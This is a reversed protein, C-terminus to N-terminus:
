VSERAAWNALDAQRWEANLPTKRAAALMEVSNDVGIFHAAPWRQALVATSNGPGCGLDVVVRPAQQAVRAALEIAPRTRENDFALYISPDWSM